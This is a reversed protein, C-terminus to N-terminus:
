KSKVVKFEGPSTKNILTKTTIYNLLKKDRPFWQSFVDVKQTLDMGLKRREEQIKRVLDRAKAEEELQPTIKTDLKVSVTKGKSWEIGKVNIEDKILKEVEKSVKSPSKVLVALLPQKVAIQKEKRQAHALEVIKRAEDMEEELKGLILKKDMLPWEQLHVSEEKTLNTFIEESVFPAFPAILKTLNTLVFYTAAYFADKDKLDDAAPGVRERSRRIYWLSLDTIFREIEFVSKQASYKDLSETVDKITNNLRSVIWKDLVNELNLKGSKKAPKWSDLNAYTIYFNYVNWLIRFVGRNIDTLYKEDFLYPKSINGSYFYWRITDAGFKDMEDWPNVVNGVSKSMKKGEKDLVLNSCIVNKYSNKGKYLTSVALLTYFWGRTQDQAEAIFDAPFQLGKDVKEKNEFPYHWQAFPMAGSDFWVDIVEPYRFMEGGCKECKGTLEDIYPKHLDFDKKIKKGTLDELERISGVCRDEGCKSCKWLPLPTGWYRFRSLSWDIMGDLWKGMRGQKISKPIWNTKNNEEIIKQKEKTTRIFWSQIAYYLLPTKCRWCLPYSHTIKELRFLLGREKLDDIILPDAKKVFVGKWLTVEDTFKGEENVLHHMSLGHKKGLAFDDAGYMVATHVIGTGEELSVFDAAYIQYANPGFDYFKYLPEYKKGVLKSGKFTSLVKANKILPLREKAVIFPRKPDDIKVYTADPNVALAVNGPLTWPTTTWVLFDVDEDVGHFRIFISPDEVDEYGLSLEHSSLPTGCRPCYPVVKYDKELLGKDYFDKLINWVSEIYDNSLTVYPDKIDEWYGMRETLDNWDNVFRFVSERCLKNFKAISAKRDGAVINEIDKKGSIGLEKEVGIEVPLGHTDWGGKRLSYEGKMTHYRPFLDKFSRALVHHIGPRGNATPPGEYFVFSKKGENKKLSKEFIKNKNWYSVIKKEIDPFSVRSDIPDFYRKASM